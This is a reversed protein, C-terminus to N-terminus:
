FKFRAEGGFVAPRNAFIQGSGLREVVYIKNTVNKGYFSVSFRDNRFGARLDLIAFDALKDANFTDEFGGVEFQLNGVFFFSWDDVIPQDYTLTLAGSLDRLRPAKNGSIDVPVTAGFPFAEGSTYEGGSVSFGLRVGMTGGTAKIDFTSRLDVELGYTNTNGANQIYVQTEGPTRTVIQVDETYTFFGAIDLQLAGGFFRSKLGVEGSYAREVGYRDAGPVLPPFNRNFGGARYASGFRVYGTMDDNVFYSLSVAPQYNDFKESDFRTGSIQTISKDDLTARLEAGLELKETLMYTLAGFASYSKTKELFRNTTERITINTTTTDEGFSQYELGILWTLRGGDDPSALRIEVGERDLDAVQIALWDRAAAGRRGLFWDLDDIRDGDRDLYLGVVTLSAFGLDWDLEGMFSKQEIDVRSPGNLNREFPDEGPLYSLAAFSPAQTDAYEFFLNLEIDDTPNARIGLRAGYQERTDLIEGDANRINGGTQDMYYGGLRIALKDQIVPVNIIADGDFRDLDNYELTGRGEFDYAPKRTIINMAGGVANRGYLAGQPGRFTQISAADFYDIRNFQRGGYAGGGIFIGNRYLGTALESNGQRGAGAGRIIINNLYDPGGGYAIIANPINRVYDVSDFLVLDEVDQATLITASSPVEILGEERKRATVTLEETAALVTEGMFGAVMLVAVVYGTAKGLAKM